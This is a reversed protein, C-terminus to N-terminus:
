SLLNKQSYEELSIETDGDKVYFSVNGANADEPTTRDVINPLTCHMDAVSNVISVIQARTDKDNFEYMYFSSVYDVFEKINLPYGKKNVIKLNITHQM